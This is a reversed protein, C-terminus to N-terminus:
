HTKSELSEGGTTEKLMRRLEQEVRRPEEILGHWIVFDGHVEPDDPEPLLGKSWKEYFDQSDIGYKKEFEQIENLLWRRKMVLKEVVEVIAPNLALAEL